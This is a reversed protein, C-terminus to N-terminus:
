ISMQIGCANQAMTNRAEQLRQTRRSNAVQSWQLSVVDDTLYIGMERKLRLVMVEPYDARRFRVEM